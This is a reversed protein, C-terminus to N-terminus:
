RESDTVGVNSAWAAVRDCVAAVAEIFGEELRAPDRHDAGVALAALDARLDEVVEHRGAEGPRM